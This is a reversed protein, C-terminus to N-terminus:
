GDIGISIIEDYLGVIEIDLIHNYDIEHELYTLITTEGIRKFIPKGLKAIITQITENPYCEKFLESEVCDRAIKVLNETYLNILSNSFVLEEETFDEESIQITFDEQECEYWFSNLSFDEKTLIKKM